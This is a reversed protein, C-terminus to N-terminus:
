KLSQMALFPSTGTGSGAGRFGHGDPNRAPQDVLLSHRGSRGRPVRVRYPYAPRVRISPQPPFTRNPVATPHTAPPEDRPRIPFVMTPVPNSPDKTGQALAAGSFSAIGFGITLFLMSARM